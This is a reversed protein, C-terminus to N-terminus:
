SSTYGPSDSDLLWRNQSQLGRSLLSRSSDQVRRPPHHLLIFGWAQDLRCTLVHTLRRFPAALPPVPPALRGAARPFVLPLRRNFLPLASSPAGPLRTARKQAVGQRIRIRDPHVTASGLEIQIWLRSPIRPISCSSPGKQTTRHAAVTAAYQAATAWSRPFRPVAAASADRVDRPTGSPVHAVYLYRWPVEYQLGAWTAPPPHPAACPCQSNAGPTPELHESAALLLPVQVIRLSLYHHSITRQTDIRCRGGPAPVGSELLRWCAVAGM